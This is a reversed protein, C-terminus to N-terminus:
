YGPNQVLNINVRVENFPIPMLYHAPLFRRDVQPASTMGGDGPMGGPVSRGDLVTRMSFEAMDRGRANAGEPIQAFYYGALLWRRMDWFNHHEYYFEIQREQRVIARLQAQNLTVGISGWAAQLSPIGARERVRNIYLIANQLDQPTGVEISAEAFNLYLEALRVIPWPSHIRGQSVLQLDPNATKKNLFGTMSFDNNGRSRNGQPDQMFYTTLIAWDNKRLREPAWGDRDDAAMAINWEGRVEYYGGHFSIWAYFRPERNLNMLLSEGEGNPDGIPFMVPDFRGEFNFDPDVQIPLGNVTYFRDLMALTPAVGNWMQRHKPLTKSMSWFDEERADIWLYEPSTRELTVFRMARQAPDAPHPSEAVVDSAVLLRHGQAHAADIAERNADRARVWKQPDLTTSIMQTGDPNAFDAYLRANESSNFLPSAAYLLMRAKISQAALSTALGREAAVRTTPLREAAYDFREAIWAVAEDYPTRAFFDEPAMGLYAEEKLLIIPGYKRLLLWHYYAILFQAQAQMDEIVAQSIGPVTHVNNYFIWAQRIGVYLTNWYTIIPNAATFNGRPFNHWTEHAFPMVVEDGTWADLTGNGRPNPIFAYTSYLFNLAAEPTAFADGLTPLEDPV